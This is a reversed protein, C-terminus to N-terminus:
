RATRLADVTTLKEYHKRSLIVMLNFLRNNRCQERPYTSTVNVIVICATKEIRGYPM